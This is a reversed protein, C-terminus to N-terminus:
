SVVEVIRASEGLKCTLLMKTESSLRDSLKHSLSNTTFPLLAEELSGTSVHHPLSIAQLWWLQSISQKTEWTCKLCESLFHLFSPSFILTLAQLTSVLPQKKSVSPQKKTVPPREKTVRPQEKTVPPREKSVPPQEKSVPPREKSVRPREKSVPPQEKSM